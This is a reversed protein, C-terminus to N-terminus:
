REGAVLPLALERQRVRQWLLEGEPLLWQVGFRAVRRKERHWGGDRRAARAMRMWAWGLLAFGVARLVDDAVRLPWEPDADRGDVLTAIAARAQGLQGRLAAGFEDDGRRADAELRAFLAEM